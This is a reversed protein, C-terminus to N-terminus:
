MWFILFFCIWPIIIFQKLINQKQTAYASKAENWYYIEINKQFLSILDFHRLTENTIFTQNGSIFIWNPFQSVNIKIQVSSEDTFYWYFFMLIFWFKEADNAKFINNYTDDLISNKTHNCIYLRHLLKFIFIHYNKFFYSYQRWRDFIM